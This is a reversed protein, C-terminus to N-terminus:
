EKRRYAGCFECILGVIVIWIAALAAFITLGIIHNIFLGLIGGTIFSIGIKRLDEKLSYMDFYNELNKFMEAEKNKNNEAQYSEFLQFGNYRM